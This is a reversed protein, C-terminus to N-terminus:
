PIGKLLFHTCLSNKYNQVYNQNLYNSLYQQITQSKCLLVQEPRYMQLVSILQEATISNSEIRIHSLVAIEPPVPLGSYFAYIPYDTFLWNTYKKHKLLIDVLQIHNQNQELYKHNEVLIVGLKIPTVFIAFIILVAALYPITIQSFNALKFKSYWKNQRFFDLSLQLGYTALWTLPISMLLYHHYWVPRHNMLVIFSIVLWIVPFSNKWQKKQIIVTSALITLLLYDFDQLLFSLTLIQSNKALFATITKESLRAQLLQEYNLSNWTIAILLSVILCAALWLLPTLLVKWNLQQRNYKNVQFIIIDFLILPIIFATFLKIQLSFGFLVGSLLILLQSNKHPFNQKYLSLIFISLMVMALSPLGIMVSVSLRLFNCSIILMLTGIIALLNGFYIRLTQSFSWVLMTAYTLTLLRASYISKGFLNLWFGLIVTSLPPQDNWVQTYMSFGDLYLIAKILEIGEDSSDFQFVQKIPMFTLAFIFFGVPILLNFLLFIKVKHNTM